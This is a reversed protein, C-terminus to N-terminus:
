NFFCIVLWSDSIDFILYKDVSYNQISCFNYIYVTSMHHAVHLESPQILTKISILYQRRDNDNHNMTTHYQYPVTNGHKNQDWKSMSLDAVWLGALMGVKLNLLVCATWCTSSLAMSQCRLNTTKGLLLSSRSWFMMNTTACTLPRRCPKLPMRSAKLRRRRTRRKQLFAHLWCIRLESCRSWMLSLKAAKLKRCPIKIGLSTWYIPWRPSSNSAIMLPALRWRNMWHGKPSPCAVRGSLGACALLKICNHVSTIGFYQLHAKSEHHFVPIGYYLMSEVLSM